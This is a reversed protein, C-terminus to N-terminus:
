LRGNQICVYTHLNNLCVYVNGECTHKDPLLEYGSNCKCYYSGLTNICRHSCNGNNFRCDIIDIFM